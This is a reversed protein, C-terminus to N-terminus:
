SGAPQRGARWALLLWGAILSAGGIPTIAGLWRMDTLAMAYLTGSFICVGLALLAAPTRRGPFPLAALAVLALAHWMQYDVATQWWGLRTADLVDKLAHAGFAGCAVAIASLLAGALLIPRAEGRTGPPLPIPNAQPM